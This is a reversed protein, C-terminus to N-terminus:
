ITIGSVNVRYLNSDGIVKLITIAKIIAEEIFKYKVAELRM